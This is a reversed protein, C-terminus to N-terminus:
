GTGPMGHVLMYDLSQFARLIGARQEENLQTFVDYSAFDISLQRDLRPPELDVVLSRLKSCEENEQTLFLSQLNTKVIAWGSLM